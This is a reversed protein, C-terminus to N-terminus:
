AHDVGFLYSVYADVVHDEAYRSAANRLEEAPVPARLAELIAAALRPADGVPVLPGLRGHDLIERPGSPCDTAVVPVGLAMAQILVNPLGEWASSLAFVAARGMFAFPNAQFGPLDVADGIGLTDALSSLAGRGEGEGLIVLRAPCSARVRAVAHILTAFDKQPALRGAAVIVPPEGPAFWPHILDDEAQALMARTVSPNPIVRVMRSPLRLRAVLDSAVGQSPAVIGDARRYAYRMLLPLYRGRRNKSNAASRSITNAERLVLRTTVSALDRAMVTVVNVHAMTAMVVGPRRQRLYAALRPLSAVVRSSGLDVVDIGPPVDGLFVGEARALVVDTEYGRQALGRALDVVVREAGGGRLSPAVIAIPGRDMEFAHEHSVSM